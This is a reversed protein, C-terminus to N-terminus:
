LTHLVRQKYLDRQTTTVNWLITYNILFIKCKAVPFQFLQCNLENQIRTFHSNVARHLLHSPREWSIRLEVLGVQGSYAKSNVVRLLWELKLQKGKLTDAYCKPLSTFCDTHSQKCYNLHNCLQLINVAARTSIKCIESFGGGGGRTGWIYQREHLVHPLRPYLAESFSCLRCNWLKQRHGHLQSQSSSLVIQFVKVHLCSAWKM